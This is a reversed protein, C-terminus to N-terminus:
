EFARMWMLRFKPHFATALLYEEDEFTSSFRKDIADLLTNVLPDCFQLNANTKLDILKKKTVILTPILCGLYCQKEGQIQDLAVAVPAM